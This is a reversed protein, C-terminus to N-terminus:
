WNGRFVVFYVFGFHVGCDWVRDFLGSGLRPPGIGLTLTTMEM